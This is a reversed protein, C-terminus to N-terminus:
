ARRGLSSEHWATYTMSFKGDNCVSQKIALSMSLVIAAVLGLRLLTARSRLVTELTGADIVQISSLKDLYPAVPHLPVQM